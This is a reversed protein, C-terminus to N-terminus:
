QWCVGDDLAALSEIEGRSGPRRGGSCARAAALRASPKTRPRTRPTNGTDSPPVRLLGSFVLTTDEVEFARAIARGKLWVVDIEEVTRVAAEDYSLPLNDLLSGPPPNWETLVAGRDRKPLWIQFGMQQGCNALLAQFHYSRRIATPPTLVPQEDDEPISVVVEKDQRRITPGRKPFQGAPWEQFVIERQRDESLDALERYVYEVTVSKDNVYRPIHSRVDEPLKEFANKYKKARFITRVDVNSEEAAKAVADTTSLGQSEYHEVREARWLQDNHRLDRGASESPDNM